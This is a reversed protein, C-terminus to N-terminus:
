SSGVTPYPLLEVIDRKQKVIITLKIIEVSLMACYRQVIYMITQGYKHIIWTSEFPKLVLIFIIQIIPYLHGIVHLPHFKQGVQIM